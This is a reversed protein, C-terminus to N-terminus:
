WLKNFKISISKYVNRKVVARVHAKDNIKKTEEQGFTVPKFENASEKIVRRLEGVNIKTVM